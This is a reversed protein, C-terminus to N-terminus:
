WHEKSQKSDWGWHLSDRHWWAPLMKVDWYLTVVNELYLVHNAKNNSRLEIEIQALLAFSTKYNMQPKTKGQVSSNLHMLSTINWYADSHDQLVPGGQNTSSANGPWVSAIETPNYQWQQSSRDLGLEPWSNCQAPHSSSPKQKSRLWRPATSQSKKKEGM